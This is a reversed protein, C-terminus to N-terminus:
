DFNFLKILLLYDNSFIFYYNFIIFTFPITSFSSISSHLFLGLNCNLANVFIPYSTNNM